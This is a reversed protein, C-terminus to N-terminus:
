RRRLERYGGEIPSRFSPAVLLLMASTLLKKEVPTHSSNQFDGDCLHDIFANRIGGEPLPEEVDGGDPVLDRLLLEGKNPFNNSVVVVLDRRLKEGSPAFM